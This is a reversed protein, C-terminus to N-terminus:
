SPSAFTQRDLVFRETGIELICCWSSARKLESGQFEDFWLTRFGSYSKLVASSRRWWLRELCWSAEGELVVVQSGFYSIANCLSWRVTCEGVGSCRHHFRLIRLLLRVLDDAKLHNYPACMGSHFRTGSFLARTIFLYNCQIVNMCFRCKRRMDRNVEDIWLKHVNTCSM